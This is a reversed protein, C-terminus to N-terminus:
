ISKGMNIQLKPKRQTQIGFWTDNPLEMSGLLDKETRIKM